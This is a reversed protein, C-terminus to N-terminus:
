RAVGSARQWMRTLIAGAARYREVSANYAAMEPRYDSMAYEEGAAKRAMKTAIAHLQAVTESLANVYTNVTELYAPDQEISAHAIQNKAAEGIAQLEKHIAALRGADAAFDIPKFLAFWKRGFMDDHVAIYADLATSLRTTLSYIESM